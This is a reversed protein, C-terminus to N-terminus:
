TRRPPDPGTWEAAPVFRKRTGEGVLRLNRRHKERHDYKCVPNLNSLQTPGDESWPQNHDIELHRTADCGERVCQSYLEALATELVAPPKRGIHVVRQVDVGDTVLAKIFAGKAMRLAVPVPIPGAGVIECVEGPETWGRFADFDMRIVLSTDTSPKAPARMGSSADAMAVFADFAYADAREYELGSKRAADFFEREFPALRAMIRATADIPGRIDIRGQGPADEWHRASRARCVAEYAGMQDHMAAAKVRSCREKLTKMGDREASRLLDREASLDMSAAAVVHQARAASLKGARMADATTPLDALGDATELTARAAGVSTGSVSALWAAADRHYGTAHAWAATERVRRVGFAMAAEGLRVIEACEEVLERAQAGDLVDADLEAVGQRLLELGQSIAASM